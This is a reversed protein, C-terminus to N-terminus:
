GGFEIKFLRQLAAVIRGNRRGKDTLELGPAGQRVNGIEVLLALRAAVTESRLYNEFLREYPEAHGPRDLLDGLIRLSVSRYVVLFLVLFALFLFWYLASVPWFAITNGTAASVALLATYVASGAACVFTAPARVVIIRPAFIAVALFVGFGAAAPLFASM